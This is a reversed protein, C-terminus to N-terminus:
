KRRRRRYKSGGGGSVKVVTRGGGFFRFLIFVLIAAAVAGLAIGITAKWENGLGDWWNPVLNTLNDWVKGTDSPEGDEIGHNMGDTETQSLWDYFDIETHPVGPEDVYYITFSGDENEVAYSGDKTTVARVTEGSTPTKYWISLPEWWCMFNSYNKTEYVNQYYYSYDIGELTQPEDEISVFGNKAMDVDIAGNITVKSRSTTVDARAYNQELDDYPKAASTMFGNSDKNVEKRGQQYRFDIKFVNPIKHNEADYMNFYFRQINHQGNYIAEAIANSLALYGESMGFTLAGCVWRWWAWPTASISAAKENSINIGKFEYTCHATAEETFYNFMMVPNAATSQPIDFKHEVPDEPAYALSDNKEYFTLSKVKIASTQTIDYEKAPFYYAKILSGEGGVENDRLARSLYAFANPSQSNHDRWQTYQFQNMATLTTDHYAGDSYVNLRMEKMAMRQRSSGYREGYASHGLGFHGEAYDFYTIEYPLSFVNQSHSAPVYMFFADEVYGVDYDYTYESSQETKFSSYSPTFIEAVKLAKGPKLTFLIDTNYVQSMVPSGGSTYYQVFNHVSYSQSVSIVLENPTIMNVGSASIEFAAVIEMGLMLAPMTIKKETAAAISTLTSFMTMDYGIAFKAQEASYLNVNTVDMHISEMMTTLSPHDETISEAIEPGLFDGGAAQVNRFLTYEAAGPLATATEPLAVGERWTGISGYNYSTGYNIAVTSTQPASSSDAFAVIPMTPQSVVLGSSMSMAAAALALINRKILM